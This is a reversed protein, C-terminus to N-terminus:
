QSGGCNLPARAIAIGEQKNTHRNGVRVAPPPLKDRRCNPGCLSTLNNNTGIGDNATLTSRENKSYMLSVRIFCFLVFPAPCLLGRGTGCQLVSDDQSNSPMIGFDSGTQTSLNIVVTTFLSEPFPTQLWINLLSGPCMKVFNWYNKCPSPRMCM